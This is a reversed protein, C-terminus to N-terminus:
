RYPLRRYSVLCSPVSATQCGAPDLLEFHSATSVLVTKKAAFPVFHFILILLQPHYIPFLSPICDRNILPKARGSQGSLLDRFVGAENDVRKCSDNQWPSTHNTPQRSTMFRGFIAKDMGWIFFGDRLRRSSRFQVLLEFLYISVQKVSRSASKLTWV